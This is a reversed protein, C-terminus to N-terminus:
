NWSFGMRRLHDDVKAELEKVESVCKPLPTEYREALGKVRSTLTRNIRDTEGHIAAELAALWKDEVVLKKVEDKSLEPYKAAAKLDLKTQTAKINRELSSQKDMLALYANLVKREKDAESDHKIAKLQEKIAGKKIKGDDDIVDNLLGEDGGHEGKMEEMAQEITAVEERMKDITEQEEPFYRAILVPPPILDAKYENSGIVFDAKEKKKKNKEVVLQRLKNAGQWDESVIMYVDDQMTESWYSMLHQYVDYKDILPMDSFSTLLEDAVGEIISKPNDGKKIGRLRPM